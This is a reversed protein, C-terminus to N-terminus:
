GVLRDGLWIGSVERRGQAPASFYAADPKAVASRLSLPALCLASYWFKTYPL